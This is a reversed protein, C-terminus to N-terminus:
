QAGGGPREGGPFGGEPFQPFGAGATPQVAAVGSPIIVTQGEELGEVIETTTGDSLGTEVVLRETTGDERLVEVISNRGETQIAQAPVTIVDQAQEVVITVSANMGPLPKAETDVGSLLAGTGGSVGRGGASPTAGAVPTGASPTAGAAPTAAFPTAEPAPTGAPPSASEDTAGAPTAEAGPLERGGASPTAGAAPTGAQPSAQAGRAGSPLAGAIDTPLGTQISARVEYTVIGQTETPNTGVSEIVIPFPRDAIADFLAVGSQGAEISPRDAETITVDLYVADPTNLVIAAEEGAGGADDSVQINIEEVTGDFPAILKAEELDERAREVSLQVLQVQARQLEIDEWDTGGYVDNRKAQAAALAAVATEVNDQAEELESQTPGQNLEALKANALDLARRAEDVKEQADELESQTPGQDLEALKANALDLARQAEDVKDQADELESQTPGQYLEALKANALDLAQQAATIDADARALDESSPGQQAESLDNQAAALDAQAAEVAADANEKAVLANKYSTNAALVSAAYSALEPPTGTAKIKLLTAEDTSSIPRAGTTCFSPSTPPTPPTLNEDVACYATEEATLSLGASTLNDAADAAMREASDLEDQARNVAEEAAAIVDDNASYLQARSAEAQDLQAQASTVAQEAALRESDTPGATLDSLARNAQDLNAQASSVSQKASLEESDTPGATLDSLARNAQDLQAQASSVAQEASLGESETPGDFLDQLTRNAKDLNAQAQVVSQDASVLEAADTGKLLQSLKVQASALNVEATTLADELEDSEIEALVDGQKVEQGLKVNVASVRGSQDFSLETTSQAVAVGSTSVTVAISGREVKATQTEEESPGEGSLVMVWLAYVGVAVLAALVVLGIVRNRWRHEAEDLLDDYEDVEEPTRSESM